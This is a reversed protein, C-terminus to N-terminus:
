SIVWCLNSKVRLALISIRVAQDRPPKVAVSGVMIQVLFEQPIIDLSSSATGVSSDTINPRKLQAL